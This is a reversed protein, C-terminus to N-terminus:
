ESPRLPDGNGMRILYGGVSMILDLVDGPGMFEFLVPMGSLEPTVQFESRLDGRIWALLNHAPHRELRHLGGTTFSFSNGHAIGNRLHYVLELEPAHNFYNNEALDDGLGLLAGATWTRQFDASLHSETAARALYHVFHYAHETGDKRKVTGLPVVHGPLLNPSLSSARPDSAVELSAMMSYFDDALREARQGVALAAVDPTMRALAIEVSPVAQEQDISPPQASDGVAPLRATVVEFVRNPFDPPSPVM